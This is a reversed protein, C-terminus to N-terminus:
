LPINFAAALALKLVVVATWWLSSALLAALVRMRPLARLLLFMSVIIGLISLLDTSHLVTRAVAGTDDTALVSFDSTAVARWSTEAAVDRGSLAITGAWAIIRAVLVALTSVAATRLAQAAVLREGVLMTGVVLSFGSLMILLVTLVFLVGVAGPETVIAVQRTILAAMPESLRGHVIREADALAVAQLRSLGFTWVNLVPM